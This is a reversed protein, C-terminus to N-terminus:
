VSLPCLGLPTLGLPTLHYNKCDPWRVFQCGAGHEQTVDHPSLGNWISGCGRVSVQPQRRNFYLALQLIEFSRHGFSRAISVRAKHNLGEVVANSYQRKARFYNLLLNEHRRLM